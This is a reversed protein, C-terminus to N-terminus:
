NREQYRPCNWCTKGIYYLASSKLKEQAKLKGGSAVWSTLETNWLVTRIIRNNWPTNNGWRSNESRSSLQLWVKSPQTKSTEMRGQNDDAGATVSILHLSNSEWHQNLEWSFSGWSLRRLVHMSNQRSKKRIMGIWLPVNRSLPIRCEEIQAFMPLHHPMPFGPM